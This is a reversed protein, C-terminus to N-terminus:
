AADGLQRQLETLQARAEVVDAELTAALETLLDRDEHALLDARQALHFMFGARHDAIQADLADLRLRMRVILQRIPALDSVPSGRGDLEVYAEAMMRLRREDGAEYAALVDAMLETRVARTEDDLALDPHVRRALERFMARLRKQKAGDLRMRDVRDEDTDDADHGDGERDLDRQADRVARRAEDALRAAREAADALTEDDPCATARLQAIQAEIVELQCQHTGVIALYRTHFRRGGQVLQALELERQVVIERLECLLSQEQEVLAADDATPSPTPEIEHLPEDSM